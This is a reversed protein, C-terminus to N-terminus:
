SDPPGGVVVADRGIDGCCSGEVPLTGIPCRSVVGPCREGVQVPRSWSWSVMGGGGWLGGCPLLVVEKFFVFQPCDIVDVGVCGRAPQHCGEPSPEQVEVWVPEEGDDGQRVSCGRVDGHPLELCKDGGPHLDRVVENIRPDPPEVEVPLVLHTDPDRVQATRVRENRWWRFGPGRWAGPAPFPGGWLRSGLGEVDWRVFAQRVLFGPCGGVPAAVEPVHHLSVWSPRLRCACSGWSAFIVGAGDGHNHEFTAVVVLHPDSRVRLLAVPVQFGDVPHERCSCGQWVAWGGQGMVLGWVGQRGDHRTFGAAPVRPMGEVSEPLPGLAAPQVGPVPCRRPPAAQVSSLLQLGDGLVLSRRLGYSCCVQAGNKRDVLDPRQRHASFRQGGDASLRFGLRCVCGKHVLDETGETAGEHSMLPVGWPGLGGRAPVPFVGRCVRSGACDPSCRGVSFPSRMGQASRGTVPLPLAGSRGSSVGLVPPAGLGIHSSVDGRVRPVPGM